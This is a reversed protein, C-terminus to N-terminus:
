SLKWEVSQLVPKAETLYAQLNDQRTVVMVVYYVNGTSNAGAFLSAAAAASQAGQTLTFCLTWSIGRAGNFAGNTASTNPCARTDSYKSKFTSDITNKNDLATQTPSSPGSAVTVSGEGNPDTLVIFETDNTAVAWGQPVKVRVGDNSATTAGLSTPTPSAIPSPTVGPTPSPIDSGIPGGTASGRNGIVAIATGFGAMLVVLAVVGAIIMMWPTRHVPAVAGAPAYYPSQYGTPGPM